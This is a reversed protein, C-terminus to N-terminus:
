GADIEFLNFLTNLSEDKLQGLAAFLNVPEISRQDPKRQSFAILLLQEIQARVRKLDERVGIKRNAYEETKATFDKHNIEIRSLVEKVEKEEVLVRTLVLSFNGGLISIKDYAAALARKAKPTLYLELGGKDLHHERLSHAAQNYHLGRDALYLASLVGLWFIWPVDSFRFLFILTAIVQITIWAYTIVRVTLRGAYGMEFLRDRFELTRSDQVQNM